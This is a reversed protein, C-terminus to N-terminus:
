IHPSTRQKSAVFFGILIMMLGLIILAILKERSQLFLTLAGFACALGVYLLVVRNQGWGLALLRHHLHERDGHIVRRWGGERFRRAVIWFVDLVPIGLVLLATALKGGSIVALTGLAYGVYTSGGEGLFIKAPHVNWFLFGIMAGVAVASMLAVDPQFYAVTMSLLLIMWAGVASVGTALGDLGDLFKTTYMVAMMWLFVIVDSEWDKLNVIGGFPNTLKEIEVGSGILILTAILPGLITARPPLVFRDDLFGVLMLVAGGLIFGLYHTATIEGGTLDNGTRLLILIVLAVSLFIAFGGFLATPHTHQKREGDPDDMLGFRPAIKQLCATLTFSLACGVLAWTLLTLIM